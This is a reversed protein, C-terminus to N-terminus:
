KSHRNKMLAILERYAYTLVVASLIVRPAISADSGTLWVLLLLLVTIGLRVYHITPKQLWKLLFQLGVLIAVVTIFLIIENM